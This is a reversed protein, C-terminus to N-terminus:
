MPTLAAALFAFSGMNRLRYSDVFVVTFSLQCLMLGVDPTQVGFGLCKVRHVRYFRCVRYVRLRYVGVQVLATDRQGNAM